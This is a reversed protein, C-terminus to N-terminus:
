PDQITPIKRKVYRVIFLGLRIFFLICCLILLALSFAKSKSSVGIRNYNKSLVGSLAFILAFWPLFTYAMSSYFIFNECVFYVVIGVLVLSLAATTADTISQPDKNYIQSIWITLNLLTALYLWTGYIAFGNHVFIRVLWIDIKRNSNIYILRNRQLLIHTIVMPTLVTVLMLFIVLLSWGFYNRDWIILWVINLTMNIIYFIFVSYHLTNPYIYLYNINSKRPIRSITYILWAAQWFYIVGWISFTWGAPTFETLNNDSISGTSRTFVGNPGSGALANFSCTIIFSILAFIILFIRWLSHKFHGNTNLEDIVINGGRADSFKVM